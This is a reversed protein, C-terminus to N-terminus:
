KIIVKEGNIIYIGKELKNIPSSTHIRRGSIDYIVMKENDADMSSGIGSQKKARVCDNQATKNYVASPQNELPTIGATLGKLQLTVSKADTTDETVGAVPVFIAFNGNEEQVINLDNRVFDVSNDDGASGSYTMTAVNDISDPFVVRDSFTFKILGEDLVDQCDATEPDPYVSVLAADSDYRVRYDAQIYSYPIYFGKSDAIKSLIVKITPTETILVIFEKKLEVGLSDSLEAQYKKYNHRKDFKNGSIIEVEECALEENFTFKVNQSPNSIYNDPDPTVSWVPMGASTRYELEGNILEASNYYPNSNVVGSVSFSFVDRNQYGLSRLLSDPVNIYASLPDLTSVPLVTVSKNRKNTLTVKANSFDVVRNYSVHIKNDYHQPNYIYNSNPITHGPTLAGEIYPIKNHASICVKISDPCQTPCYANRGIFSTINKTRTDYFTVTAKESVHVSVGTSDRTITVDEFNTPMDTHIRMSPDGFCHFLERTLISIKNNKHGYTEAMRVQGQDLIQGLFYTPKPKVAQARNSTRSNYRPRLGPEPWIADFMGCILADNYGSFSTNTAAFIAVCGGDAKRIFKEAFCIKNNFSGTQCNISFVVPLMNKNELRDINGNQFYPRSWGTTNGHDRHLVYFAGRNIANIIDESNGDWAFNPKRLEEPISDGNSYDGNNWCLPTINRDTYYIRKIDKGIQMLCNRIEESTLTFRRDEYNQYEDEGDQFEACNVGTNYYDANKPPNNEYQIIKDVVIDAEEASSVSLRGRYIDPYSDITGEMCGYYIDTPYTFQYKKSTYTHIPAPVDEFDGILLLFELNELTDYKNQVTSKVKEVTWADDVVIHSNFGMHKKWEALRQAADAFENTTIILYDSVNEKCVGVIDPEPESSQISKINLITNGLISNASINYDGPASHVNSEEATFTIKYKVTSYIRTINNQVDYQIPSVTVNLLSIGRYKEINGPAIINEPFFGNYTEIPNVNDTTYGYDSNDTLPVRAPSLEMQFDRYESNVLEVSAAKGPPVAFKDNRVAIMPKKDTDNFGFGYFSVMKANAFLPDDKVSVSNFRYTVIVGNDLYEVDRTPDPDATNDNLWITNNASILSAALLLTLTMFFHKM